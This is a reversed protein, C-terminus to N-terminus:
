GPWTIPRWRTKPIVSIAGTGTTQGSIVPDAKIIFGEDREVFVM